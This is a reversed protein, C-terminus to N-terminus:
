KVSLGGAVKKNIRAYESLEDDSLVDFYKTLKELFATKLKDIRRALVPSLYLSLSRRDDTNIKRILYGKQVLSDVQQTAASSTIGILSSLEKIGLGPNEKVVRLIIMQSYTVDNEATFSRFAASVVHGIEHFNGLIEEITRKRDM